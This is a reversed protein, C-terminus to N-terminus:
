VDNDHEKNKEIAKNVMEIIQDKNLSDMNEIEQIIKDLNARTGKLNEIRREIHQLMGKMWSRIGRFFDIADDKSEFENIKESLVLRLGKSPSIEAMISFLNAWRLKLEDLFKRGLDTIIFFKNARGEVIEEKSELYKKEELEQLTRILTGRPFNYKEQLQYGTIGEPYESIILLIIFDRIEQFSERGIPLPPKFHGRTFPRFTGFPPFGGFPPPPGHHEPPGQGMIKYPEDEFRFHDIDRNFVTM